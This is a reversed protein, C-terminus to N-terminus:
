FKRQAPTCKLSYRTEGMLNGTKNNLMTSTAEVDGTVRDISGSVTWTIEDSNNHGVFSVLQESVRDIKVSIPGFGSVTGAAFNVIISMSSPNPPDASFFLGQWTELGQCALTLTEPEAARATSLVAAMAIAAIVRSCARLMPPVGAWHEIGRGM